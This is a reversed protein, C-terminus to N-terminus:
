LLFTLVKFGFNFSSSSDFQKNATLCYISSQGTFPVMLCSQRTNVNCTNSRITVDREILRTGTKHGSRTNLGQSHVCNQSVRTEKVTIERFHGGHGKRNTNACHHVSSLYLYEYKLLKIHKEKHM